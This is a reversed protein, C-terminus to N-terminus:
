RSVTGFVSVPLLVNISVPYLGPPIPTEQLLRSTATWTAIGDTELRRAIDSTNVSAEAQEMTVFTDSNGQQVALILEISLSAEFANTMKLKCFRSSPLVTRKSAASQLVAVSAATMLEQLWFATKQVDLYSGTCLTQLLSAEQCGMLEDEPHHIFCLMDGPKRERICMCELEVRLRSNRVPMEGETGLELHFSHGPPPKLPVLLRYVLDEGHANQGKLFRGLGVAPQVCPMFGNGSFVRCVCLLENVLDEVVTCIQKRNPLPWMTYEELFRDM